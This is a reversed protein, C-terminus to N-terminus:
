AKGRTVEVGDGDVVSYEIVRVVRWEVQVANGAGRVGRWRKRHHCGTRMGSPTVRGAHQRCGPFRYARKASQLIEADVTKNGPSASAPM